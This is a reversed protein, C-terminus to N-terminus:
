AKRIGVAYLNKYRGDFGGDDLAVPESYDAMGDRVAGLSPLRGYLVRKVLSKIRM